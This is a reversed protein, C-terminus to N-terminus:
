SRLFLQLFLQVKREKKKQLIKYSKYSKKQQNKKLSSDKLYASNCRCCQTRSKAELYQTFKRELGAAWFPSCDLAASQTKLIWGIFCPSAPQDAEVRSINDRILWRQVKNPKPCSESLHWMGLVQGLTHVCMKRRHTNGLTQSPAWLQIFHSQEGMVYHQGFWICVDENRRINTSNWICTYM